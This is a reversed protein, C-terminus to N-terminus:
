RSPGRALFSMVYSLAV